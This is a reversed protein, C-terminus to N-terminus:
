LRSENTTAQVLSVCNATMRPIRDRQERDASNWQHAFIDTNEARVKRELKAMQPNHGSPETNSQYIKDVPVPNVGPPLPVTCM